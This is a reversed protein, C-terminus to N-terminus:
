SRGNPQRGDLRLELILKRVLMEIQDRIQCHKDYDLCVPDEVDWVRLTTGNIQPLPYGSMNIIVDFETGVLESLGKPVQDRVDLHKEEMARITDDAVRLAPAFGASAPILVDSGYARAFAEAMQSRCANGICLFLVRKPDSM